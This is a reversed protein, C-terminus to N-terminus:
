FKILWFIYIRFFIILKLKSASAEHIWWFFELKYFKLRLANGRCYLFHRFEYSLFPSLEFILLENWSLIYPWTKVPNGFRIWECSTYIEKLREFNWVFSIPRSLYICARLHFFHCKAKIMLYWWSLNSSLYYIYRQQQKSCWRHFQFELYTCLYKGLFWLISLYCLNRCWFFPPRLVILLQWFNGQILQCLEVFNLYLKQLYFDHLKILLNLGQQVLRWLQALFQWFICFINIGEKYFKLFNLKLLNHELIRHWHYWLDMRAFLSKLLAQIKRFPMMLLFRPIPLKASNLVM